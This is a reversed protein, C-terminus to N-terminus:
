DEFPTKKRIIIDPDYEDQSPMRVQKKRPAERVERSIM